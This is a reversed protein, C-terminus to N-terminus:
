FKSKRSFLIAIDTKVREREVIYELHTYLRLIMAKILVSPENKAFTRNVNYKRKIEAQQERNMCDWIMTADVTKITYELRHAVKNRLENLKKYPPVESKELLGSDRLLELLKTIRLDEINANPVYKAALEKAKNECLLLGRIIYQIPDEAKLFIVVPDEDNRIRTSLEASQLQREQSYNVIYRLVDEELAM